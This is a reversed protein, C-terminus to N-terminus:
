PREGPAEKFGAAGAIFARTRVEEEQTRCDIETETLSIDPVGDGDVDTFRIEGPVVAKDMKLFEASHRDCRGAGGDERFLALRQKMVALHGGGAALRVTYLERWLVRHDITESMVVAHRVESRDVLVRLLSPGGELVRLKDPQRLNVYELGRADSLTSSFALFYQGAGVRLIQDPLVPVSYKPGRRTVRQRLDAKEPTRVPDEWTRFDVPRFQALYLRLTDIREETQRQLCCTRGPAGSESFACDSDRFRRWQAHARRLRAGDLPSVAAELEGYLAELVAESRAESDECFLDEGAVLDAATCRVSCGALFVAVALFVWGKRM